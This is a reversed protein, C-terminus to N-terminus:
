LVSNNEAFVETGNAAPAPFDHPCHCCTPRDRPAIRGCSPCPLCTPWRRHTLYGIYGPLGFLFVFVVWAPTWPMGYQRQRRYCLWAFMAAVAVVALIPPWTDAWFGALSPWYSGTESASQSELPVVASVAGWVVPVTAILSVLTMKKRDSDVNWQLDAKQRRVIGTADLWFLECHPSMIWALVKGDGLPTWSLNGKRLEAPVAFTEQVNGALDLVRVCDSSRVLMSQSVPKEDDDGFVRWRAMSVLNDDKCVSKVSQKDWDVLVLGEDTLIFKADDTVRDPDFYGLYRFGAGNVPFQDDLPPADPRFGHIGVYGITRKTPMDYGVMYVRGHLNGDHVAYWVEAAKQNRFFQIVRSNWSPRTFTTFADVSASLYQTSLRRGVPLERIQSGDLTRYKVSMPRDRSMSSILPTGDRLVEISESVQRPRIVTADITMMVWGVVVGWVLGAGVALLVALLMAQLRKTRTTM